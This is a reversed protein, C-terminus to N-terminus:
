AASWSSPLGSAETPSEKEAIRAALAEEVETVKEAGYYDKVWQIVIDTTLSDFPILTEPRELGISGYAGEIYTGNTADVRWEVNFVYGDETKRKLDVVSWTYSISM